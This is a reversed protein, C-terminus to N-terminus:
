SLGTSRELDDNLASNLRVFHGHRLIVVPAVPTYCAQGPRLALLGPDASM